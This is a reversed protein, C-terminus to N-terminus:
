AERDYFGWVDILKSRPIKLKLYERHPAGIIVVDSKKVLEAAPVFGAEKVYVDSCYVKKCEVECIKRLKYALSERKDDSEAKFAMGLIGVRTDKMKRGSRIMNIVYNPLGENILMASHGLFFNNNNFSALQMTDKFLCPGATFGPKPMSKARPYDKTLAGFIKYFDLGHDKAIMYFQNAIAFNIYRYTNTFLKALEAEMPSIIILKDNIRRFLKSAEDVAKKSTGSIIQPLERIEKVAFGEAVREPCFCVNVNKKNEKFLADIKDTTGPYITSRLILNQGDKFHGMVDIFFKKMLTIKPNLHEDVPTGIVVVINKANSIIKPDDYTFLSRNIVRKLIEGAGEEKFPMRAGNIMKLTEKNIDYVGVKLGTDAFALALPLGVHGGGGIVLLDLKV